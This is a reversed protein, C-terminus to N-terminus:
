ARGASFRSSPVSPHNRGEALPHRLLGDNVEQPRVRNSDSEASTCEESSPMANSPWCRRTLSRGVVGRAKVVVRRHKPRTASAAGRGVRILPRELRCEVPIQQCASLLSEPPFPCRGLSKSIVRAQRHGVLMCVHIHAHTHTRAHVRTYM